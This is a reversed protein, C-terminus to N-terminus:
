IVIRVPQTTAASTNGVRRALLHTVRAVAALQPMFVTMAKTEGITWCFIPVLIVKTHAPKM